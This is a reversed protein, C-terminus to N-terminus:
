IAMAILDGKLLSIPNRGFGLLFFLLSTNLYLDLLPFFFKKKKKQFTNRLAFWTSLIFVSNCWLISKNINKFSSFVWGGSEAYSIIPFIRIRRFLSFHLLYIYIYIAVPAKPLLLSVKYAKSYFITKLPLVALRAAMQHNTNM